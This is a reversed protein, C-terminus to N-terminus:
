RSSSSTSVPCSPTTIHHKKVRKWHALWAAGSAPRVDDGSTNEARYATGDDAAARNNQYHGESIPSPDGHPTPTSIFPPPPTQTRLSPEVAVARAAVNSRLPPPESTAVRGILAQHGDAGYVFSSSTGLQPEASRALHAVERLTMYERGGTAGGNRNGAANRQGGTPVRPAPRAESWVDASAFSRQTLVGPTAAHAEGSFSPPSARISTAACERPREVLNRPSPTTDAVFSHPVEQKKASEEQLISLPPHPARSAASPSLREGNGQLSVPADDTLLSWRSPASRWAPGGHERLHGRETYSQTTRPASCRTSPRWDDGVLVMSGRQQEAEEREEEEKAGVTRSPNLFSAAEHAVVHRGQLTNSQPSSHSTQETAPFPPPPELRPSPQSSLASTLNGQRQQLPGACPQEAPRRASPPTSNGRYVVVHPENPALRHPSWWKERKREVFDPSPLESISLRSRKSHGAARVKRLARQLRAMDDVESDESIRTLSRTTGALRPWAEQSSVFGDRRRPPPSRADLARELALELRLRGERAAVEVVRDGDTFSRGSAQFHTMSHWTCLTVYM